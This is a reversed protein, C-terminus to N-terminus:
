PERGRLQPISPLVCDFGARSLARYRFVLDYVVHLFDCEV